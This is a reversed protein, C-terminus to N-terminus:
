RRHRKDPIGICTTSGDTEHAAVGCPVFKSLGTMSPGGQEESMGQRAYATEPGAASPGQQSLAAPPLGGPLDRAPAASTSNGVFDGSTAARPTGLGNAGTGSSGAGLANLSPNGTGAAGNGGPNTSGPAGGGVAGAPPGGGVRGGPAGGGVAASGAGAAGVGGGIAAAGGSPAGHGGGGAFAFGLPLVLIPLAFALNRLICVVM